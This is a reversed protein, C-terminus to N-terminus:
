HPVVLVSCLAHNLVADATSGLIMSAISRAGGAGIVALDIQEKDITSLIERAPEGEAVLPRCQALPGPLSRFTQEMSKRSAALEEDHERAWAQVMAEVEPSHAQKELWDPLRGAFISPVVSLATFRTKDPWTFKTLLEVAPRSSQANEFALLVNMSSRAPSPSRAVWVPRTSRHVITRSVSGLLLRKLTTLGRAGMGIM